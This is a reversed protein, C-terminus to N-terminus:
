GHGNENAIHSERLTDQSHTEWIMKVLAWFGNNVPRLLALSVEEPSMGTCSRSPTLLSPLPASRCMKWSKYGWPFIPPLWIHIILRFICTPWKFMNSVVFLWQYLRQAVAKRGIGVQLFCHRSWPTRWDLITSLILRIRPFSTSKGPLSSRSEFSPMSWRHKQSSLCFLNGNLRCGSLGVVSVIVIDSGIYLNRHVWSKRPQNKNPRIALPYTTTVFELILALKWCCIHCCLTKRYRLSPRSIPGGEALVNCSGHVPAGWWCQTSGAHQSRASLSTTKPTASHDSHSGWRFAVTPRCLEYPPLKGTSNNQGWETPHNKTWFPLSSAIYPFCSVGDWLPITMKTEFM